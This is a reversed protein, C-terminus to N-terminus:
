LVGRTGPHLALWSTIAVMLLGGCLLSALVGCVMGWAVGVKYGAPWGIDHGEDRGNQRAAVVAAAQRLKDAFAANDAESTIRARRQRNREAAEPDPFPIGSHLTHPQGAADRLRVVRPPLMPAAATADADPSAGVWQDFNRPLPLAHCATAALETDAFPDAPPTPTLLSKLM